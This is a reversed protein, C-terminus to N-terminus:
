KEGSAKQNGAMCTGWGAKGVTKISPMVVQPISLGQPWNPDARRAMSGGVKEHVQRSASSPVSFPGQDSHASTLFLQFM